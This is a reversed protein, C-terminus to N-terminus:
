PASASPASPSLRASPRAWVMSAKPDARLRLEILYTIATGAALGVAVGTVLRGIFVGAAGEVGGTVGGGGDHHGCQQADCGATRHARAIRPVALARRHHWRRLHCLCGHDHPVVPSRQDPVPRIAPETAHRLGHRDALYVGGDLFRFPTARQHRRATADVTTM